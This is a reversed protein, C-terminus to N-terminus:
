DLLFPHKNEFARLRHRREAWDPILRALAAYFRPGHNRWRLHAVEHAVLYELIDLPTAALAANVRIVGKANCSGWRTRARSLRVDAVTMGLRGALDKALRRSEALLEGQAWARVALAVTRERGEDTLGRPVSVLLGDRVEVRPRPIDDERIVLPLHEGRHLVTAGDVFRTPPPRAEERERLREQAREWARVIWARKMRLFAWAGQPGDLPARVPVVLEVRDARVNISIRRARTSRRVRGPIPTGDAAQGFADTPNIM